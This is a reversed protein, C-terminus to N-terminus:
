ASREAPLTISFATGRFPAETRSRMSITGKHKEVIQRTVWLGLGSGLNGKTSFFPDFVHGRKGREIGCGSDAFTIRVEPGRDSDRRAVRILIRGDEEIADLSNVLLNSFVQRLEGPVARIRVDDTWDRQIHARKSVIKGRLLDISSEILEPISVELPTTSERYFGLSQRTIHAVRRLEAEAQELYKKAEAPLGESNVALYLLNTTAELPNNIEHSISAVLRGLMALKENRVAAEEARKRDTIDIAFEAVTGDGLDRGAFLMWRRSGDRLVYEKEYPGIRGTRSLHDMQEESASVWEPPTLMRWTVERSAVEERTHGVLRLFVDNADVVTGTYDFFIVGVAETELVRQLRTDARERGREAVVRATTDLGIALIGAVEGGADYVPSYSLDFWRDEPQEQRTYRYLQDTLIIREGRRVRDALPRYTEGIEPFAELIPQGLAAPHRSEILSIYADNYFLLLEPGWQLTAAFACGLMTDLASRLTEPWDSIPGLTTSTWDFARIREAM